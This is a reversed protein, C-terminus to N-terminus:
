ERQQVCDVELFQFNRHGRIQPSGISTKFHGVRAERRSRKERLQLKAMSGNMAVYGFYDIRRIHSHLAGRNQTTAKKRKSSKVFIFDEVM